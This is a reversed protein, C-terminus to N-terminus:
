FSGIFSRFSLELWSIKWELRTIASSITILYDPENEFLSFRLLFRIIPRLSHWDSSAPTTPNDLPGCEFPVPSASRLHTLHTVAPGASKRVCLEDSSRSFLVVVLFLHVFLLLLFFCVCFCKRESRVLSMEHQQVHIRTTRPSFVFFPFM